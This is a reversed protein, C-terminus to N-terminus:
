GRRPKKFDQADNLLKVKKVVPGANDEATGSAVDCESERTRKKCDGTAKHLGDLDEIQLVEVTDTIKRSTKKGKKSKASFILVFFMM